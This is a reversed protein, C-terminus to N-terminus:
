APTEDGAPALGLPVVTGGLDSPQYRADWAVIRDCRDVYWREQWRGAQVGERPPQKLAQTLMEASKVISRRQCEPASAGDMQLLLRATDRRLLELRTEGGPVQAAAPLMAVLLMFHVLFLTSRVFIRSLRRSNM